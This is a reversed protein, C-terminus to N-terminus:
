TVCVCIALAGWSDDGTLLMDCMSSDRLVYRHTMDCMYVLMGGVCVCIGLAGWSDDGTPAASDSLTSTRLHPV